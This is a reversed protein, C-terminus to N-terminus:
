PANPKKDEVKKKIWPSMRVDAAHISESFSAVRPPVHKFSLVDTTNRGLRHEVVRMDVVNRISRGRGHRPTM